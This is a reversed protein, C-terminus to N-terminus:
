FAGFPDAAVAALTGLWVHLLVPSAVALLVLGAGTIAPAGVLVVMLQPMARNIAGLALNYIFAALVFPAALSFALSFARAVHGVVFEATQGSALPTGAPFLHYSEILREVITVHLGTLMALALGSIVLLHGVAPLPEGGAGGFLQSLSTSQAIMSGAMQLANVMVRFAFGFALGILSETFLLRVMEASGDPAPGAPVAPGVFVTLALALSVRVRVSVTTEGLAPLLVLGAGIRVFIAAGHLVAATGLDLLAALDGNM